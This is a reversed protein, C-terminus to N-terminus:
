YLRCYTEHIVWKADGDLYFDEDAILNEDIDIAEIYHGGQSLNRIYLYNKPALSGEYYRDVYIDVVEDTKNQVEMDYRECAAVGTILVLFLLFMVIRRTRNM